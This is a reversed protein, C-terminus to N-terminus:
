PPPLNLSVPIPPTDCVLRIYRLPDHAHMEIPTPLGGPGGHTLADIFARVIATRRATAFENLSYRPFSTLVPSSVYVLVVCQFLVPRARLAAFALSLLRSHDM